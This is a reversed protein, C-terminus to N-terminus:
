ARVLLPISQGAQGNKSLFIYFEPGLPTLLAQKKTIFHLWLKVKTEKVVILTKHPVVLILSLSTLLLKKKLIYKESVKEPLLVCSRKEPLKRDLHRPSAPQM